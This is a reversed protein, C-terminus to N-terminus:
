AATKALLKTLRDVEVPKVLYHDFGAALASQQDEAQAYGSLAVITAQSAHPSSRLRRALERGDMGPLGIDLICAQPQFQAVLGLAQHGDHAVQCAHGCAQLYLALTHAADENDDVLLIRLAQAEPQPPPEPVETTEDGAYGPIWVTFCSGQGPGPSQAAIRGGHLAVLKKVLPLGLGLGGERRDASREAQSFLEFAKHLMESSMGIGNDIVSVELGSPDCASRIEIRGEAPTYKAANTILNVLIQVMRKRDAKIRMCQSSLAVILRHGFRELTERSQEIAEQVLPGFELVQLDLNILGHNLRASDLLDDVLGRMHRAQRAILASCQAVSDQPLASQSMLDAATLIPSLPNRLEHALMALFLDRDELSKKLAGEAEIRDTIDVAVVVAGEVTGDADWIPTASSLFVRQDEPSQPSTIRLIERSSEGMLARSMPWQTATLKQGHRQSGDAWFRIWRGLNETRIDGWLQRAYSNALVLRPGQEVVIVAAPTADVLAALRSQETRALAEAARAAHESRQLLTAAHHQATVNELLVALRRSGPGGVRMICTKFVRDIGSMVATTRLVRGSALVDLFAQPWFPERHPTIESICVGPTLALGSHKSFAANFDLYRHDPWQGPAADLLELLCYGLDMSEILRSLLDPDRDKRLDEVRGGPEWMLMVGISAQGEYLPHYSYRGGRKPDASRDTQVRVQGSALAQRADGEVTAWLAASQVGTRDLWAQNFEAPDAGARWLAMPSPSDQCLRSLTELGTSVRSSRNSESM